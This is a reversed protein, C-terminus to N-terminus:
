GDWSFSRVMKGPSRTAKAANSKCDSEIITFTKELKFSEIIRCSCYSVFNSSYTKEKILKCSIERQIGKM